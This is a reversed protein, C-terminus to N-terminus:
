KGKKKSIAYGAGLACMILLGGGLPAKENEQAGLPNDPTEPMSSNNGTRNDGGESYIGFFGDSQPFAVTNMMLSMTIVLLIKRM